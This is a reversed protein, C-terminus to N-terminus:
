VHARGIEPAESRHCFLANAVSRDRCKWRFDRYYDQEALEKAAAAVDEANTVALLIKEAELGARKAKDPETVILLEAPEGEPAFVFKEEKLAEELLGGDGLLSVTRPAIERAIQRALLRCREKEQKLEKEKDLQM